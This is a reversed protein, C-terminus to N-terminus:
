LYHKKTVKEKLASNSFCIMLKRNSLLRTMGGLGEGGCLLVPCCVCICEPILYLVPSFDSCLLFM